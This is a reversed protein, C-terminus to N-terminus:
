GGTGRASALFNRMAGIVATRQSFLFDNHNGGPLEVIQVSAVERHLREMVATRVPRYHQAHWEAAQRRQELDPLGAPLWGAPFVFLAPAKIKRYDRRYGGPDVIAALIEAFVSDSTVSALSGDPQEVVTNRMYAEIADTWPVGVFWTAQWWRRLDDLSRLADRDPFLSLPSHEFARRWTPDARDFAADLYTITRVRAPYLEAFRTIERGGLSWGALHVTNMELHDVLQRLDETLTEADYPSRGESSGHGRRAYAVVRHRDNFAPALDDFCHPSDGLGHLLILPEGTGGWDLYHVRVGNVIAFHSAHPCSDSWEARLHTM